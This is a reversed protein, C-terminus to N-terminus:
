IYYIDIQMEGKRDVDLIAYSPRRNDQRPLSISGPNVVTVNEDTDFVPRHIHGFFAYDCGSRRAAERLRDYGYNVYHNHGHTLFVKHRGIQVVKERPLRSFFDNNGAVMEVPCPSITELYGESGELDGLHILLDIPSVKRIVKEMNQNRGHSDSVLLVKM